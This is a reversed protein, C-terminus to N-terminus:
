GKQLHYSELHLDSLNIWYLLLICFWHPMSMCVYLGSHSSLFGLLLGMFSRALWIEVCADFVYRFFSKKLLNHQSFQMDVHLLSFNIRRKDQVFPFEFYTLSRLTLGLVRFSSSSFMPFGNWSVPVLLSKRSLTRFACSPLLFQPVLDCWVLFIKKVAFYVILLIFLCGVSPSFISTLLLNPDLIHLSSLFKVM